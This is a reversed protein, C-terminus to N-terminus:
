LNSWQTGSMCVAHATSPAYQYPAEALENEGLIEGQVMQYM